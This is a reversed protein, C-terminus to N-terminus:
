SLITLAEIAYNKPGSAKFLPLWYKWVLFDQDGDGERVADKFELFLLGLSIVERTYELVTSSSAYVYQEVIHQIM